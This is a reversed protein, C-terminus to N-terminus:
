RLWTSQPAPVQDLITSGRRVVLTFRNRGSRLTGTRIRLRSRPRLGRALRRGLTQPDISTYVDVTTDAPLGRSSWGLVVVGRGRRLPRQQSSAPRPSGAEVRQMRRIASLTVRPSGSGAGLVRWRGRQPSLVTVGVYRRAPDRVVTMGSRPAATDYTQGSPSRLRVRPPAAARGSVADALLLVHRATVTPGAEAGVWQPLSGPGNWARFFGIAAHAACRAGPRVCVDTFGAAGRESVVARGGASRLGRVWGAVGGAATLRQASMTVATRGRLAVGPLAIAADLEGAAANPFFARRLRLAGTVLGGDRRGFVVPGALTFSGTAGVELRSGGLEMVEPSGWRGSATVILKPAQALLGELSGEVSSLVLGTRGFAVPRTTTVGLADPRGASIAGTVGLGFVPTVVGGGATWSDTDPTYALRLGEIRWGAGLPIGAVSAGDALLRLSRDATAHVGLSVPESRAGAFPLVIRAPVVIGGGDREDLFLSPPSGADPAVAELGGLSLRELHAEALRILALGGRGSSADSTAAADVDLVGAAVPVPGEARRVAIDVLGDSVIHETTTDITVPGGIAV